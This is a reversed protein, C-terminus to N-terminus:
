QPQEPFRDGRLVEIMMQITAAVRDGSATPFSLFETQQLALMIVPDPVGKQGAENFALGWQEMRAYRQIYASEALEPWGMEAALWEALLPRTLHEHAVFGGKAQFWKVLSEPWLSSDGRHRKLMSGFAKKGEYSFM